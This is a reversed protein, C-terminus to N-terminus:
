DTYKQVLWDSLKTLDSLIIDPKAIPNTEHEDSSVAHKCLWITNIGIMNGGIVDTALLDGVMYIHEREATPCARLATEYITNHPKRYGVISSILTVSFYHYLQHNYLLRFANPADSANSILGLKCGISQLKQLCAHSDPDLQWHPETVFYMKDLTKRLLVQPLNSYGFESLVKRLQEVTTEEVWTNERRHYYGQMEKQFRKFLKKVPIDFGNANLTKAVIEYAELEIEVRDGQYFLLTNGLDFFITPRVGRNERGTQEM